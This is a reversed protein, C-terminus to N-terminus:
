RAAIALGYDYGVEEAMAAAQDPDLLELSRALLTALLDDRRPPFNLSTDLEGARYRKSPRGATEHRALEVTLYGGATLKELHHRAVNPHLDFREAVEAATVGDAGARVFLYIDRRTPDGFASTVASVEDGSLGLAQPKVFSETM